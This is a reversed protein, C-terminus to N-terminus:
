DDEAVDIVDWDGDLTLRLEDGGCPITVRIRVPDTSVLTHEMAWLREMMRICRDPADVDWRPDVGHRDYFAIVTPHDVVTLEVPRRNRHKCVTCVYRVRASDRTKCNSCVEGPDPAHETCLRLSADIPGSCEPCVGAEMMRNRNESRIVSTVLLEAPRRPAVGAPDCWFKAITGRPYEDDTMFGACDSCTLRVAEHQYSLEVRGEGCRHCRLGLEVPDVVTDHIGAGAIIARVIVLGANRLTYGEETKEVFHDTLKDLHYTFNASDRVAVRDYLESFALGPNTGYPDYAEWLALLIALRTEDSLVKFADTAHAGTAGAAAELPSPAPNTEAM